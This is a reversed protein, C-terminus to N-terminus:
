AIFSIFADLIARSLNVLIAGIVATKIIEIGKNYGEGKGQDRAMEIGGYVISIFFLANFIVLMAGVAWQMIAVIPNESPGGFDAGLVIEVMVGALLTIALGILANKITKKGNEMGGEAWPMVMQLGGYVFFVTSLAAALTVLVSLIALLAGSLVEGPAGCGILGGCWVTVAAGGQAYATPVIWLGIFSLLHMM